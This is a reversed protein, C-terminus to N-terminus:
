LSDKLERVRSSHLMLLKQDGAWARRTMLPKSVRSCGGRSM